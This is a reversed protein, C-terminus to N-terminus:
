CRSVHAGSRRLRRHIRKKISDMIKVLQFPTWDPFRWAMVHRGPVTAFAGFSPFTRKIAKYEKGADIGQNLLKRYFAGGSTDVPKTHAVRIADAVAIRGQGRLISAWAFDIGWTSRSLTFTPLLEDLAPRSFCPAMVEVFSVQRLACLPNWLTVDHSAHTGWRLAPQCLYTQYKECLLFFRSIDGPAFDIDDDIVLYYRYPRSAATERYFQEFAELKNDGGSVYFEAGSEIPPECYWSICCDWNRQPEDQILRRHLSNSGARFFALFDRM